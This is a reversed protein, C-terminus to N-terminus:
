CLGYGNRLSGSPVFYFTMLLQKIVMLCLSYGGHEEDESVDEHAECLLEIWQRLQPASM